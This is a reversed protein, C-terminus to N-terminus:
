TRRLYGYTNYTSNIGFFDCKHLDVYYGLDTSGLFEYIAKLPGGNLTAWVDPTCVWKANSDEVVYWSGPTVVPAFKRLAELVEEYIHSGDDIVMVVDFGEVNKLDYGQYGKDFLKVRPHDKVVESIETKPQRISGDADDINLDISHVEGDIGMNNMMDGMYIAFGGQLTGIEILLMKSNPHIMGLENLMMQYLMVDNPNKMMVVGKYHLKKLADQTGRLSLHTM